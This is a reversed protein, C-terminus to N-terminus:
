RVVFRRINDVTTDLLRQRAARSSWACHPTILLHPIDTALMPYGPPPPEIALVDLAAGGLQGSRLAVILASEDVLGGRATNILLAGRKMQALRETNIFKETRPSLLGHLSIIDSQQLVTEM